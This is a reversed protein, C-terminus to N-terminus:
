PHGMRVCGADVDVGVDMPNSDRCFVGRRQGGVVRGVQRRINTGEAGARGVEGGQGLSQRGAADPGDDHFRGADVPDRQQLQQFRAAEFHQQDLRALRPM